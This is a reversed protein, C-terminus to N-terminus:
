AGRDWWEEVEILDRGDVAAAARCGRIIRAYIEYTTIDKIRTVCHTDERIGPDHKFREGLGRWLGSDIPPHLLAVLGYRGLGGVYVATKLYVNVLKVAWGVPLGPGLRAVITETARRHWAEFAAADIPGRVEQLVENWDVQGLADYIRGRDKVPSGSRLASLATWGAYQTVISRRRAEDVGAVERRTPLKAPMM